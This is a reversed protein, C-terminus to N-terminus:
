KNQSKRKKAAQIIEKKRSLSASKWEAIDDLSRGCGICWKTEDFKVPEQVECITM